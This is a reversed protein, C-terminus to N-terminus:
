GRPEISILKQNKEVSDGTRVSIESVTGTTPSKLENEMKMAELIAVPQGAEIPQGEEVMIEILKGPMPARVEGASLADDTKFGLKELLLDQEGKVEARVNNGNLTFQIQKGDKEVNDIRYIKTGIRLLHRNNKQVIWELKFVRGDVEAKSAKEDLNVFTTKGNIKTEFQM